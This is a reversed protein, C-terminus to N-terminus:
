VFYLLNTTTIYTKFWVFTSGKQEKKASKRGFWQSLSPKVNKIKLQYKNVM